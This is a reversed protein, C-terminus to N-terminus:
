VDHVAAVQEQDYWQLSKGQPAGNASDATQAHCQQQIM